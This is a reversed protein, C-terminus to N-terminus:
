RTKCVQYYHCDELPCVEVLPELDVTSVYVTNSGCSACERNGNIKTTKLTHAFELCTNKYTIGYSAHGRNALWVEIEKTMPNYLRHEGTGTARVHVMQSEALTERVAM